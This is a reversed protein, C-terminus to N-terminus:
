WERVPPLLDIHTLVAIIIPPKLHPLKRYHETLERVMQVDTQRASTNAAMVLLIVDAAEAAAKVEQRQRKTVGAEDYGPTDLLYISNASQPLPYQYRQVERTQPLVSTAAVKDKMLANILCSKGAKVQGLVAITTSVDELQGLLSVDGRSAHVASAMHGFQQRYRRSGEKLRGSYMEILYYGTQRLYYQYFARVAENQLELTVLGAKRWLPYTLLKSPNALTTALFAAIQGIDVARAVTPLRQLHAITALQSGPINELTWEELDEVALHIVAFIEIMTLPHLANQGADPYYHKALREALAQADRIYRDPDVITMRDISEVESRFGEVVAIAATDHQTWFEPARLPRWPVSSHRKPPVWVKGITWAGLWMIPLTWAIFVLWGTQYIAIVGIVLYLLVPLSWLLFLVVVRPRLLRLLSM